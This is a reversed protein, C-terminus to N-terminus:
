VRPLNQGLRPHARRYVPRPRWGSRDRWWGGRLPCVVSGGGGGARHQNRGGGAAAARAGAFLSGRGDGAGNTLLGISNSHTAAMLAAGDKMLVKEYFANASKPVAAVAASTPADELLAGTGVAGGLTPALRVGRSILDVEVREGPRPRPIRVALLRGVPASPPPPAAGASQPPPVVYQAAAHAEVAVDDRVEAVSAASALDDDGLANLLVLVRTPVISALLSLLGGPPTLGCAAAPFSGISMLGIGAPGPVKDPSGAAGLLPASHLTSTPPVGSVLYPAPAGVPVPYPTAESSGGALRSRVAQLAAEAVGSGSTQQQQAARTLSSFNSSM